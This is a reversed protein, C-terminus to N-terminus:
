SGYETFLADVTPEKLQGDEPKIGHDHQFRKTFRERQEKTWTEALGSGYGLNFLRQRAGPELEEEQSVPPEDADPELPSAGPPDEKRKIRYLKDPGIAFTTFYDEDDFRDTDAHDSAPKGDPSEPPKPPEPM